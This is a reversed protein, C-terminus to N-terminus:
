HRLVGLTICRRNDVYVRTRLRSISFANGGVELGDRDINTRVKHIVSRALVGEAVGDDDNFVFIPLGFYAITEDDNYRRPTATM